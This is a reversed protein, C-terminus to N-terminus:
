NSTYKLFGRFYNSIKSFDQVQVLQNEFEVLEDAVLVKNEKCCVQITPIRYHFTLKTVNSRVHSWKLFMICGLKVDFKTKM